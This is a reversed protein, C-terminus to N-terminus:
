ERRAFGSCWRHGSSTLCRGSVARGKGAFTLGSIASSIEANEPQGSMCQANISDCDTRLEAVLGVAGGNSPGAILTGM